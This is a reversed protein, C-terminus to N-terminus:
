NKTYKIDILVNEWINRDRLETLWYERDFKNLIDMSEDVTLGNVIINIILCESSDEPDINYYLQIKRKGFYLEIYRPIEELKELLCLHNKLFEYVKNDKIEYLHSINKAVYFLHEDSSM